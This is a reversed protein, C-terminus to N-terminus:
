QRRTSPEVAPRVQEILSLPPPSSLPSPSLLPLLSPPRVQEILATADYPDLGCLPNVKKVVQSGHVTSM